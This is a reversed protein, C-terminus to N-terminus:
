IVLEVAPPVGVPLQEWARRKWIPVDQKFRDMFQTLLAFGERRHRSAIGVYIAAERVPVIGLRHVVRAKLCPYRPALEELISQMLRLAMPEYAEYELAAIKQGEEDGRVLGYFEAWSGVELGEGARAHPQPLEIRERTFQLEIEM